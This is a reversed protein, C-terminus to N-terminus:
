QSSHTLRGLIHTRQWAEVDHGDVYQRATELASTDNAAEFDHRRFIHDNEDLLYARYNPM